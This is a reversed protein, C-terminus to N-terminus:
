KVAHTVFPTQNQFEFMSPQTPTPPALLPLVNKANQTGALM